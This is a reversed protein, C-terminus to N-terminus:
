RVSRVKWVMYIISLLVGAGASLLFDYLDFEIPGLTPGPLLFSRVVVTTSYFLIATVGSFFPVLIWAAVWLRQDAFASFRAKALWTLLFAVVTFFPITIRDIAAGSWGSRELSQDIAVAIALALIVGVCLLLVLGIAFGISSWKGQASLQFSPLRFTLGSFFASWNSTWVIPGRGEAEKANPASVLARVRQLAEKRKEHTPNQGLWDLIVEVDRTDKVSDWTDVNPTAAPTIVTPSVGLKAFARLIQERNEVDDTHQSQFGFPIDFVDLDPVRVAILKKLHLAYRAEDLVFLSKVSAKTWIVVAAKARRLTELIVEQFNDSGVLEADWWVRYGRGELDKALAQALSRDQRAYSIFVDSM